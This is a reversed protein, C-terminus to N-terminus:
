GFDVYVPFQNVIVIAVDKDIYPIMSAFEMIKDNSLNRLSDIGLAQKVSKESVYRKPLKKSM